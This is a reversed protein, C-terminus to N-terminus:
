HLIQFELFFALVNNLKGETYYQLLENFHWKCLSPPLTYRGRKLSSYPTHYGMVGRFLLICSYQIGVRHYWAKGEFMKSLRNTDTYNWKLRKRFIVFDNWLNIETGPQVSAHPLPPLSDPYCTGIGIFHEKSINM